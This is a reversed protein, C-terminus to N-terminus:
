AAISPEQLLKLRFGSGRVTEIEIQDKVPKLCARLNCVYVDFVRGDPEDELGYVHTLLEDRSVLRGPRLAIYELLEYIKPSLKLPCGSLYARRAKLDLRLPGHSAEPVGLHHVRRVVAQLRAQSEAFPADTNIVTDAGADLWKVLEARSPNPAIIAISIEDRLNRLQNLSLKGSELQDAEIIVLDSQGFQLYQPIDEVCEARSLLTGSTALNQALSIMNWSTEAILYRM